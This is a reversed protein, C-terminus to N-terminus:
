HAFDGPQDGTGDAQKPESGASLESETAARKQFFLRRIRGEGLLRGLEKFAFFPIFAFFTVLCQALLEYKSESMLEEFGGALGKGHMLGGITHELVGFVGVFVCFVVTKYFTPIILPKEELKRGLHLADGVLIVKALVLAEILATGYHLYSIGYEALVLRRYWAFAGFFFALYLFTIWYDILERVFKQKLGAKKMNAENM